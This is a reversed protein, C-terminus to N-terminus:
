LFAAAPPRREAFPMRCKLGPHTWFLALGLLTLREEAQGQTWALALVRFGERAYADARGMWSDRDADSLACRAILVEPAGKLYSVLDRDERV